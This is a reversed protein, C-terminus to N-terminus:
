WNKKFDKIRKRLFKNTAINLKIQKECEHRDPHQQGLLITEMPSKRLFYISRLLDRIFFKDTKVEGMLHEVAWYHFIIHDVKDYDPREIEKEKISGYDDYTGIHAEKIPSKYSPIGYRKYREDEEDRMHREYDQLFNYFVKLEINELEILYVKDNELIGTNTIGCTRAFCGM